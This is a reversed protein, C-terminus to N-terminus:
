EDLYPSDYAELFDQFSVPNNIDYGLVFELEPLLREPGKYGPSVTFREVDVTLYVYSPYSLRGNLLAVAFEHVGRRGLNAQFKYTSDNVVVDERQEADFKVAYYHTNLYDIVLSDQFTSADMKKCWGCWDTYVDVFFMRPEQENAVVAEEISMWHISDKKTETTQAMTSFSFVMMLLLMFNKMPILNRFISRNDFFDM